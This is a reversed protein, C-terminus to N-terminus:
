RNVTQKTTELIEKITMRTTEDNSYKLAQTFMKISLKSEGLKDYIYGANMLLDPNKKDKLLGCEVSIAADKYLGTYFMLVAQLTYSEADTEFKSFLEDLKNLATMYDQNEINEEINKKLIKAKEYDQTINLKKKFERCNNILYDVAGRRCGGKKALLLLDEAQNFKAQRYLCYGQFYYSDPILSAQKAAFLAMNFCFHKILLRTLTIINNNDLRKCLETIINVAEENKGIRTLQVIVATCDNLDAFKFEYDEALEELGFIFRVAPTVDNKVDNILKEDKSLVACMVENKEVDKTSDLRKSIQFLKAAEAYKEQGILLYATIESDLVNNKQDVMLSAYCELMQANMYNSIIGALVQTKVHKPKNEYLSRCFKTLEEQPYDKVMRLLNFISNANDVKENFAKFFYEVAENTKFQAEKIIGMTNYVSHKQGSLATDVNVIQKDFNELTKLLHKEGEDFQQVNFDNTAHTYEADIYDPFTAIYDDVLERMDEPDTGIKEESRYINSFIRRHIDQLPYNNEKVGNIFKKGTIASNEYDGISLYADSLYFYYNNKRLPTEATKIADLILRLNREGKDNIIHKSYGTHNIYLTDKNFLVADIPDKPSYLEEHIPYRYRCGKKFIRVTRNSAILRNDIDININDMMCVIFNKKNNNAYVVSKRINKATGGGFSEDADLFIIWDGMADDLACNKAKAFDNCWKFNIVKAGLRKAIEVTRDTSGTDVVIIEDVFKRYSKISTEINKEENKTITCASILIKNAKNEKINARM